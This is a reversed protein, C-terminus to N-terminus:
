SLGRELYTISRKLDGGFIRPLQRDIEGLAHYASGDEYGANLRLVTEMEVRVKKVNRFATIGGKERCYGGYCAGLWFHGEVGDPNKAVARQGVANGREFYGLREKAPAGDGVYFYSRAARWLLQYDNPDNTLARELTELAQREHAYDAGYGFLRDAERIADTN